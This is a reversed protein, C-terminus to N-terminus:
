RKGHVCADSQPAPNLQTGSGSLQQHPLLMPPPVGPLGPVSGAGGGGSGPPGAGIGAGAGVDDPPPVSGVIGGGAEVAGAGIGSGAGEPLPSRGGGSQPQVGDVVLWQAGCTVSQVSVECHGLPHSHLSLVGGVAAGHTPRASGSPPKSVIQSGPGGGVMTLCHM